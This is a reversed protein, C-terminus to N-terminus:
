TYYKHENELIPGQYFKEVAHTSAAIMSSNIFHQLNNNITFPLMM